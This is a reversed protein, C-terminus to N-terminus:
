FKFSYIKEIIIHDGIKLDAPDEIQNTEIIKSVTTHYTKAIKWLTDEPQMYYITLSPRTKPDVKEEAVEIGSIVNIFKTYFVECIAGTNVKIEVQEGNVISHDVGDIFLDVGAEMGESAGEVEIYHRFPVERAFSYLPRLEEMARYIVTVELIGEIAVKDITANYDVLIPKVNISFVEAISSSGPPIDLTERVLVNARNMGVNEKLEIQEEM